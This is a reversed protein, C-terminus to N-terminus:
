IFFKIMRKLYLLFLLVVIAWWLVTETKLNEKYVIKDVAVDKTFFVTDPPCVADVLITDNIRIIKLSVNNQIREITDYKSSVITDRLTREKTVLVTDVRVVEKQILTPDKAIARNLYYNAGCSTMLLLCVSLVALKVIKQTILTVLQSLLKRLTTLGTIM